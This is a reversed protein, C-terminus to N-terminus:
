FSQWLRRKSVTKLGKSFDFNFKAKEIEWHRPVEGLWEVGSPKYQEYKNM